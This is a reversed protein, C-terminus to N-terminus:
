VYITHNFDDERMRGRCVRVSVIALRHRPLRVEFRMSCSAFIMLLVMAASLIQRRFESFDLDLKRCFYYAVLETAKQLGTKLKINCIITQVTFESRGIHDAIEKVSLGAAIYELIENERRTLM